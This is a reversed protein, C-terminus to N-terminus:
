MMLEATTSTALQLNDDAGSELGLGLQQTKVTLGTSLALQDDPKAM